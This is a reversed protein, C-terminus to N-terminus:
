CPGRVSAAQRLAIPSSSRRARRELGDAMVNLMAELERPDVGDAAMIARVLPDSLADTLTLEHHSANM